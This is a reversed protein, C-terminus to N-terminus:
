FNELTWYTQALAIESFAFASSLGLAGWVLRRPDSRPETHKRRHPHSSLLNYSQGDWPTRGACRLSAADAVARPRVSQRERRFERQNTAERRVAKPDTSPKLVGGIPEAYRSLIHPL